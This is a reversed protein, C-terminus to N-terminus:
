NNNKFLFATFGFGLLGLAIQFKSKSFLSFLNKKLTFGKFIFMKSFISNM